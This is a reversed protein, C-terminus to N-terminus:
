ELVGVLLLKKGLYENIAQRILTNRTECTKNKIKDLNNVTEKSIRIHILQTDNM